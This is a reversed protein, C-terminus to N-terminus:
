MKDPQNHRDGQEDQTVITEATFDGCEDDNDKM